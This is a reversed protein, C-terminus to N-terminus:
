LIYQRAGYPYERKISNIKRKVKRVHDGINIEPYTRNSVRHKENNLKVKEINDTKRAEKPTLGTGSHVKFNNYVLLIRPLMWWWPEHKEM